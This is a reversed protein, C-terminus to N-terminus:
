GKWRRPDRGYTWEFQFKGDMGHVVVQSPTGLHDWLFRAESRAQAVAARKPYYGQRTERGSQIMWDRTRRSYKVRYVIRKAVKRKAM